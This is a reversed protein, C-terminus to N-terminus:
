QSQKTKPKTPDDWDIKCNPLAQKLEAIGTSTLKTELLSLNTLKTLKKLHEVGADDVQTGSLNLSM